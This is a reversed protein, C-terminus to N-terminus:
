EDVLGARKRGEYIKDVINHNVEVALKEQSLGLFRTLLEIARLKDALSIRTRKVTTSKEGRGETYEDVTFNTLAAKLEPTLKSMNVRAAGQEDIEIIDGINADAISKLKEVIWDLDVQSRASAIKQSKKLIKEVEPHEFVKNASTNAMSESYGAEIMAQKKSMGRLYFNAAKKMRQSLAM